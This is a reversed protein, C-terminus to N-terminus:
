RQVISPADLGLRVTITRTEGQGLTTTFGILCTGPNPADYDHPPPDTPYVEWRAGKAGEAALSLRKDGSVLAANTGNDLKPTATTLMAWRVSCPQGKRARITDEITVGDAHLTVTRRASALQDKYVETLDVVSRQQPTASHEVITARGKPNQQKGDVVLVSHALSSYRFVEWRQTGWLDVGKSELSYYKQLGLDGGWRVGGAEFVFSGADMHGHPLSACGGKVGVFAATGNTWSSRHVAVPNSGRGLWSLAAPTTPTRSPAGWVLILPVHRNDGGAVSIKKRNFADLAPLERWLVWPAQRRQAFWFLAPNVGSNMGCDFYNFWLGSPGAVHLMYEASELFGPRATLGFDSDLASELAAIMLVNFTTGYSWYGPGEPYAGDPAYENMSNLSTVARTVIDAAIDPEEDAIALAGFVMGAHCVQNWNTRGKIWKNRRANLSPTLGHSVIAARILARSNTTLGAYLWDYGLALAMTMEAADLFHSPNWDPFTAAALMEKEARHLYRTDKTLRYAMGLCTVRRFCAGHVQLRRGEKRYEIPAVALMAEAQALVKDRTARLLANREIGKRWRVEDRPLLLRPHPAMSSRMMAKSENVTVTEWEACSALSHAMILGAALILGNKMTPMQGTYIPRPVIGRSGGAKEGYHRVVFM